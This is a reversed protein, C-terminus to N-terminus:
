MYSTSINAHNGGQNAPRPLLREAMLYFASAGNGEEVEKQPRASTLTHVNKEKTLVCEIALKNM